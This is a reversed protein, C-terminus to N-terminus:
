IIIGGPTKKMKTFSENKLSTPPLLALFQGFHFIVIVDLVHWIESVAYCMVMIRPVSPYFSIELGKKSQKSIKMKQARLTYFPFTYGLIFIDIVDAMSWIEPVTYRIIM